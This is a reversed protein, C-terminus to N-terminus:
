LRVHMVFDTQFPVQTTPGDPMGVSRLLWTAFRDKVAQGGGGNLLRNLSGAFLDAIQMLDSDKSEVAEFEDATLRGDLEVKGAQQVKDRLQTLLIKDAGKSELDKWVQVTRPFTARGTDNEHQTGQRILQYMLEALADDVRKIGERAVSVAKFSVTTGEALVLAIAQRYYPEVSEDLEKFHMEKDFGVRARWQGLKRTLVFFEQPDGFWVSAVILTKATKGSEDILVTLGPYREAAERARELEEDSLKGRYKRVDLSAKFLGFTNQIRARARALSMLRARAFLDAPEISGGDYGEYEEWYRLMLKLDSDRTEPYRNLVIAVRHGLTDGDDGAVSRLIADRERELKEAKQDATTQEYAALELQQVHPDTAEFDEM